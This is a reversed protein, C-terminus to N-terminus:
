FSGRLFISYRRDSDVWNHYTMGASNLNDILVKYTSATLNVGQAGITLNKWFTWQVSADLQGYDGAFAPVNLNAAATTMLYQSRWNYALRAEFTPLSYYLEVNYTRKSLGELPYNDLDANTQQGADYPNAAANRTGGSKVYTYSLRSGFNKLPGPLFDFLGNWAAEFGRVYGKGQNEPRLVNVIKTVGNNTYPVASNLTTELFGSIQKDFLAGVLSNTPNIYWEASLDINWATMPKLQSNGAFGNYRFVCDGIVASNNPLENCAGNVLKGAQATITNSPILKPFDPRTIAKDVAFRLYMQDTFKYRLNFSPLVDTYSNSDSVPTSAGNAFAADDPAPVGNITAFKLLGSASSKTHVVRVGVNGDFQAHRFSLQGYGAYTKQEQPNVGLGDAAPFTSAYDGNWKTWTCCGPQVGAAYLALISNAWTDYNRFVGPAQFLFGAPANGGHFWNSYPQAIYPVTGQYTSFTAPSPPTAWGPGVSGWRYGTERTTSKYDEYRAGFRVHDLWDSNDFTYDADARYAWADANSHEHHDMAWGTVVQNPDMLPSNGPVTISPADAGNLQLDYPLATAGTYVPGMTLDIIKTNAKEHQIDTELHWRDAPAWNVHLSLDDNNAERKNYRSSGTWGADNIVGGTLYGNSFTLDTGNLGPAAAINWIANEDQDFTAHAYFYQVTADVTREPSRWQLAANAGTRERELTLERWGVGGPTNVSDGAVLDTRPYWKDVHYTNTKSVLKSNTLAGLFGLDGIGTEIRDSYLISASPKTVKALDGRSEEISFSVRRGPSDFPLRTRLNVTGGIGGEIQQASPNKFVDVGAMLEPPIDEFGLVRSNKASFASRGNLESRVWSLGRITVGSGETQIRDADRPDPLRGIAVGPIRQLVETVSRDPLAGIDQADISDVIEDMNQKRAQSNQLQYRLGTIVVEQLKDSSEDAATPEACVPLSLMAATAVASVTAFSQVRSKLVRRVHAAVSPNLVV